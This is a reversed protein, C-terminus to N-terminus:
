LDQNQILVNCQLVFQNLDGDEKGLLQQSSTDLQILLNTVEEPISSGSIDIIMDDISEHDKYDLAGELKSRLQESPLAKSIKDALARMISEQMDEKKWYIFFCQQLLSLAELLNLEM